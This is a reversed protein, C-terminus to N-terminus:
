CKLYELLRDAIRQSSQGDIKWCMKDRLKIVNEKNLDPNKFFDDITKLLDNKDEIQRVGNTELVHKFHSLHKFRKVSQNFSREKSGDFNINIIPKLFASAEVSISSYTSIIIDCHCLLNVFHVMSDFKPYWAFGSHGFIKKQEIWDLYVSKQGEFRDFKEHDIAIGPYPRIFIQVPYSFKNEKMAEILIEAIDGDDPAYVSSSSFFITKKDPDFDFKKMFEQRSWLFEKQAFIDYQPVGVVHINEEKYNQLEIAEKKLAENWVLLKDVHLPEFRKPLHDWSAPMGITKINQRKAERILSAGPVSLVDLVFIIDPNYKDFIEKHPRQRYFLNDLKLMLNTRIWGSRGITEAIFVKLPYLYRKKDAVPVDIRVGLWAFLRAGETFNMYSSIFYYLNQLFNRKWDVVIPEIFINDAGFDKKIQECATHPVLLVIKLGNKKLLAFVGKPSLLFNRVQNPSFIGIFITKM